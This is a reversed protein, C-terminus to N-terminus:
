KTKNKLKNIEKRLLQIDNNLMQIEPDGSYVVFERMQKKENKM